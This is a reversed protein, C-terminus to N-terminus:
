VNILGGQSQHSLVMNTIVEVIENSTSMSILEKSDINNYEIDDKKFIYMSLCRIWELMGRQIFLSLGSGINVSDKNNIASMRLNEYSLIINKNYLDIGTNDKCISKM